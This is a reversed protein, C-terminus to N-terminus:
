GHSAEVFAELINAAAGSALAERALAVGERLGAAKGATMLLAGANLAVVDREAPEGGGSLLARLREANEAPNGGTVESL